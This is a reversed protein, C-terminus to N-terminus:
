IKLKEGRRRNKNGLVETVDDIEKRKVRIRKEDTM